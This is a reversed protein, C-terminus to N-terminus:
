QIILKFNSHRQTDCQVKTRYHKKSKDISAEILLQLLGDIHSTLFIHTSCQLM